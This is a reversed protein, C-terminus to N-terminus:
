LRNFHFSVNEADTSADVANPAVDKEDNENEENVDDNDITENNNRAIPTEIPSFPPPTLPSPPSKLDNNISNNESLSSTSVQFSLM